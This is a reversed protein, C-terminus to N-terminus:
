QFFKALKENEEIVRLDIIFGGEEDEALQYEPSGPKRRPILDFISAEIIEILRGERTIYYDKDGISIERKDQPDVEISLSKGTRQLNFYYSQKDKKQEIKIEEEGPLSINILSNVRFMREEAGKEEKLLETQSKGVIEPRLVDEAYRILEELKRRDIRKSKRSM